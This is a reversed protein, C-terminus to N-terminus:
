IHIEYRPQKTTRPRRNNAQEKKTAWKCNEPYYGKNNDVRELSHMTSPRRGMDSLFKEYVLWRDCVTIGRAGYYKYAKYTPTLCRTKMACWIAYESTKDAEGHTKNVGKRGCGCSKTNGSELNSIAVIKIGGCKCQCEYFTKGNRAGVWKIVTLMVFVIGTKNM